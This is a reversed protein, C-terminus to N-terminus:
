IRGVQSGSSLHVSLWNEASGRSPLDEKIVAGDSTRIIRYHKQPHFAIRYDSTTDIGASGGFAKTLLTEVRVFGRGVEAVLLEVYASGNDDQYRVEIKDWPRLQASVHAWYGPDMIADPPTGPEPNAIWINREYESFKFRSAVLAPPKPPLPTIIPAPAAQAEDDKADSM